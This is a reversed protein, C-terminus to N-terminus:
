AVEAMEDRKPLGIFINVMNFLGGQGQDSSTRIRIAVRKEPTNVILRFRFGAQLKEAESDLIPHFLEM